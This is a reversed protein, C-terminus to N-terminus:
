NAPAGDISILTSLVKANPYLQALDPMSAAGAPLTEYINFTTTITSPATDNGHTPSTESLQLPTYTQPQVYLKYLTRPETQDTINIASEGNISANPNVTVGPGKLLAVILDSFTPVQSSSAGGAPQTTGTAAPYVNEQESLALADQYAPNGNAELGALRSPPVRQVEHVINSAADYTELTDGSITLASTDPGSTNDSGEQDTSWFMDPSTQSDWSQYTDIYNNATSTTTVVIHLIGSGPGALTATVHAIVRKAMADSVAGPTTPSTPLLNVAAFAIAGATTVGIGARLIVRRPHRRVSRVASPTETPPRSGLLSRFAAEIDADTPAVDPRLPDAEGILEFLETDTISRTRTM